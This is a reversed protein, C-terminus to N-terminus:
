NWQHNKWSVKLVKPVVPSSFPGLMQRSADYEAARQATEDADHQPSPGKFAVRRLREEELKLSSDLRQWSAIEGCGATLGVDM